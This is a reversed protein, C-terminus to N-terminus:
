APQLVYFTKQWRAKEVGQQDFTGPGIELIANFFMEPEFRQPIRVEVQHLQALLVVRTVFPPAQLHLLVPLNTNYYEVKHRIHVYTHLSFIGQM